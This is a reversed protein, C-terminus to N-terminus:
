GRGERFIKKPILLGILVECTDNGGVSSRVESASKSWFREVEVDCGLGIFPRRGIIRDDGATIVDEIGIAEEEGREYSSSRGSFEMGSGTGKRGSSRPFM